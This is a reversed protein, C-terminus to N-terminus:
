DQQTVAAGRRCGPARPAPSQNLAPREEKGDLAGPSKRGRSLWGGQERLDGACKPSGRSNLHGRDSGASGVRSKLPDELLSPPGAARSLQPAPTLPSCLEEKISHGGQPHTSGLSRSSHVPARLAALRPVRVDPEQFSRSACGPLGSTPFPLWTSLLRGPLCSSVEVRPSEEGPAPSKPRDGSGAGTGPKWAGRLLSTALLHVITHTDRDRGHPDACDSSGPGLTPQDTFVPLRPKSACTM